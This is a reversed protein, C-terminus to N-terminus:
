LLFSHKFHILNLFIKFLVFLAYFKNDNLPRDWWCKVVYLLTKRLKERTLPWEFLVHRELPPPTQSLTVLHWLPSPSPTLWFTVHWKKDMKSSFIMAFTKLFRHHKYFLFWWTVCPPLTWALTVLHCMPSPSPGLIPWFLTVYKRFSGKCNSKTIKLHLFIPQEYFTSSIFLLDFFFIPFLHM